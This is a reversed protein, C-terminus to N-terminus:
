LQSVGGGTNTQQNQIKSFRTNIVFRPAPTSASQPFVPKDQSKDRDM